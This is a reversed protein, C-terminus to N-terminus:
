LDKFKVNRRHSWHNELRTKANRMIKKGIAGLGCGLRKKDCRILRPNELALPLIQNWIMESFIQRNKPRIAYVLECDLAEAAESLKNLSITGKEEGLEYDSYTKRNKGSREAVYNISYFLARRARRLWGKQGHKYAMLAEGLFPQIASDVEQFKYESYWYLKAITLDKESIQIKQKNQNKQVNENINIEEINKEEINKEEINKKESNIEESKLVNIMELNIM